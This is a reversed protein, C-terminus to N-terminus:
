LKDNKFQIICPTGNRILQVGYNNDEVFEIEVDVLCGYNEEVAALGDEALERKEASVGSGCGTMLSATLAIATINEKRM